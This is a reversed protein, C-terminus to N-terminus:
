SKPTASVYLGRGGSPHAYTRFRYGELTKLTAPVSAGTYGPVRVYKGPNADAAALVRPDLRSGPRRGRTTPPTDLIELDSYDDM